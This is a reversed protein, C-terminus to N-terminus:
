LNLHHQSGFSCVKAVLRHPFLSPSVHARRRWTSPLSTMSNTACSRLSALWVCRNSSDVQSRILSAAFSISRSRETITVQQSTSFRGVPAVSPWHAITCLKCWCCELPRAILPYLRSRCIDTLRQLLHSAAVCHYLVGSGRPDVLVLLAHRLENAEGDLAPVRSVMASLGVRHLIVLALPAREVDSEHDHHKLDLPPARRQAPGLPRRDTGPAARRKIL